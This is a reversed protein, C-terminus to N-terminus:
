QVALNTSGYQGLLDKFAFMEEVAALDGAIAGIRKGDIRATKAAIAAFAEQWSAARLKGNERIYPRDLRQTRLGDVVHCIPLACTQVGTVDRDRIGDEAQFFFFVVWFSVM